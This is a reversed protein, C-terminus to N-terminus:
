PHLIGTQRLQRTTFTLAVAILIALVGLILTLPDFGIKAARLVCAGGMMLLAMAQLFIAFRLQRRAAGSSAPDSM